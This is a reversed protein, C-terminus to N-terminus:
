RRSVMACLAKLKRITVPLDLPKTWYDAFGCSRSRRQNEPMADASVAIVPICRTRRDLKLRKRVEWGTMDPLTMDLLIFDPQQRIAEVLGAEGTMATTLSWEPQTAFLQDMLVVNVDDDEIYLVRFGDVTSWQSPTDLPITEADKACMGRARPLAVRFCSGVDVESWVQLTGRMAEVLQRSITLGLGTGQIGSQAADLRNFPEFLRAIQSATLGHGTDDVTIEGTDENRYKVTLRGGQRNYKIGNSLLNILVQELANADARVAASDDDGLDIAIAIGREEAMPTMADVCRRILPRLNVSRLRLNLKGQEIKGIQLLQDVLAL